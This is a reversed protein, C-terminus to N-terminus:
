FRVEQLKLIAQNDKPSKVGPKRCLWDIINVGGTTFYKSLIQYIGPHIFGKVGEPVTMWVSSEIDRETTQKVPTGCWDCVFSEKYAGQTRRCECTPVVSLSDGEYRTVLQEILRNRDDALKADLENVLLISDPDVMSFLEDFDVLDLYTAM